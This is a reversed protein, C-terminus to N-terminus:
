DDLTYDGSAIQTRIYWNNFSEKEDATLASGEVLDKLLLAEEKPAGIMTFLSGKNDPISCSKRKSTGLRIVMRPQFGFRMFFAPAHYLNAKYFSLASYPLFTKGDVSFTEEEANILLKGRHRWGLFAFFVGVVLTIAFAFGSIVWGTFESGTAKAVIMQLGAPICVGAVALATLLETKPPQNNIVTVTM